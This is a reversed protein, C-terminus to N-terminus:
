LQDSRSQRCCLWAYSVILAANAPNIFSPRHGGSRQKLMGPLFGRDLRVASFFQGRVRAALDRRDVGTHRRQVLDAAGGDTVRANGYIVVYERLGEANTKDGLLSL